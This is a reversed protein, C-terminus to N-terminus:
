DVPPAMTFDARKVFHMEVIISGKANFIDTKFQDSIIRLEELCTLVHKVNCNSVTNVRLFSFVGLRYKPLYHLGLHFAAHHLM